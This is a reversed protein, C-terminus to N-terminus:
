PRRHDMYRGSRSTGQHKKSLQTLDAPRMTLLNLPTMVSEGKGGLGHCVACAHRFEQQGVAAIDEQQALATGPPTAWLVIAMLLPLFFASDHTERTKTQMWATM